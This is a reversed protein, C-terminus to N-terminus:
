LAKGMWLWPSPSAKMSVLIPLSLEIRCWWFILSEKIVFLLPWLCKLWQLFAKGCYFHVTVICSYFNFAITSTSYFHFAVASISPWQLLLYQSLVSPPFASELAFLFCKFQDASLRAYRSTRMSNWVELWWCWVHNGNYILLGCLHFNYNKCCFSLKIIFTSGCDHKCCQLLKALIMRHASYLQNCNQKYPCPSNCKLVCKFLYLGM